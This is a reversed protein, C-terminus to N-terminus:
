ALAPLHSSRPDVFSLHDTTGTLEFLRQVTPSGRVLSFTLGDERARASWALMLRLGTSDVFQLRRLDLM